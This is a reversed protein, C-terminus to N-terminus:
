FCSQPDKAEADFCLDVRDYERARQSDIEANFCADAIRNALGTARSGVRLARGLRFCVPSLPATSLGFHLCLSTKATAAQPLASPHLQARELPLPALRYILGAKTEKRRAAPLLPKRVAPESPLGQVAVALMVARLASM